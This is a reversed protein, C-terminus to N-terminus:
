MSAGGELQQECSLREVVLHVALPGQTSSRLRLCVKNEAREPTVDHAWADAWLDSCRKVSYLHVSRTERSYVKRCVARKSSLSELPLEAFPAETYYDSVHVADLCSRAPSQLSSLTRGVTGGGVSCIGNRKTNNKRHRETPIRLLLARPHWIVAAPNM